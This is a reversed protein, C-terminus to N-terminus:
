SIGNNEKELSYALAIVKIDVISLASFNGCKKSFSIVTDIDSKSPEKFLVEYTRNKFRERAKAERIESIVEPVTYLKKGLKSVDVNHIFAATDLVVFDEMIKYHGKRKYKDVGM